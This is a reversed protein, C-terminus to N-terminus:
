SYPLYINGFDSLTAGIRGPLNDVFTSALLSKGKQIFKHKEWQSIKKSLDVALCL